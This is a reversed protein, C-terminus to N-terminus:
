AHNQTVVMVGNHQDVLQINNKAKEAFKNYGNANILVYMRKSSNWRQWFDEEGILWDKTNQFPMGYWLERVWNDKQAIDPATWDAVITVRRELYIPLDQYYHFYAVVDDNPTLQPKLAMAIPKISKENVVSTSASLTLLGIIAISALCYIIKQLANKKLFVYTVIGAVLFAFATFILYPAAATPIKLKAIHPATLFAACIIISLAIFVWSAAYFGKTKLNEWHGDLYNGVMLALAPLTPIIYGITKSTPISFFVFIVIFWLLVFLESVHQQRNNWATKVQKAIAQIAFLSWPFFGALVVPVYFWISAKNNYEGATLFRSVQQTVFFFHLFEPNAKQVLFYWPVTIALFIVAGTLIRMQKLISWRNLLLIWLGIIIAPFAIGILGKTLAALGAFVYAFIFYCSRQRKATSTLGLLSFLLTISILVAVELDLNAYHAAGYYLPSTALIISALIATRRNFLIHGAVYTMLCGLVGITAPWFRLAWEKLGFLQIASAQLWYYLAPKDLFAVGDLRPTIYDHSAVMERAVESYRGEDPTFLAHSGIWIAYFIGLFAAIIVFDILLQRISLKPRITSLVHQNGYLSNKNGSNM